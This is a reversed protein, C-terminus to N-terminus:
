QFICVEYWKIEWHMQMLEGPMHQPRHSSRRAALHLANNGENDVKQFADGIRKNGSLLSEFVNVQRNEVALLVINKRDFIREDYFTDPLFSLILHVM